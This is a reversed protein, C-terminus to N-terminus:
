DNTFHSSLHHNSQMLKSTGKWGQYDIKDGEAWVKYTTVSTEHPLSLESHQGELTPNTHPLLQGVPTGQGM